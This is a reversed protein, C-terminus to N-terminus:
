SEDCGGCGCGGCGCGGCATTQWGGNGSATANPDPLEVTKDLGSLASVMDASKAHSVFELLEPVVVVVAVSVIELELLVVDVLSAVIAVSVPM